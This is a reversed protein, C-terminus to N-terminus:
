RIEYTITVNSVISNEGVPIQPVTSEEIAVDDAFEGGYARAYVPYSGGESFSVIRVIRVDLDDALAEAKDEADEIALQRAERQLAEEDDITFQLGSINTAGREGVGSLLGGADEIDRVKVRVSQRVEYGILVQEGPPQPCPYTICVIEQQRWEYRPYVNYNVTQIDEEEVDQEELYALIANSTEAAVSQAEETTDRTENVSFTFEAVDPVALVEGEGSLTITNGPQGSGIQGSARIAAVSLIVFFISLIILLWRGAKFLKGLQENHM